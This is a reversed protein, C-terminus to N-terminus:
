HIQLRQTPLQGLARGKADLATLRLLYLGSPLTATPLATAAAGNPALLVYQGLALGHGDLLTAQLAAVVAPLGTVVVKANKGNGSPNPFIAGHSSALLPAPASARMLPATVTFGNYSYSGSPTTLTVAALGLAMGIPVETKVSNADVVTFVAPTAGYVVSTTGLLNLGTLYVVTGEPGSTPSLSSIVPAPAQVTFGSFSCSGGPTTLGVAALGLGLGNPVTATVTSGNVVKFTAPAGGFLVSSMGLLNQGTITVATGVPGSGPSLATIAPAPVGVVFTGASSTAGIPTALSITGTTAAAPVVASISTASLVTFSSAEWGNFRVTYAGTFATGTLLVTSGVPGVGPSFSTIVPLPGVAFPLGNSAAGATTLTLNGTTAGAPVTATVTTASTISFTTAVVGNFKVGIVSGLYNGKVTVVTGVPGGGPQLSTIAPTPLVTFPVANSVLGSATFTVSGTTAGSPVTTRIITANIVVFGAALGNFNVSSTGGTNQCSLTVVTGVTGSTPSLSLIVPALNAPGALAPSAGATSISASLLSVRMLRALLGTASHFFTCIQSM